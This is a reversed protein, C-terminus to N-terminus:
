TRNGSGVYSVVAQTGAILPFSPDCSGGAEAEQNSPNFACVVVWSLRSEAAQIVPQLYNISVTRHAPSLLQWIRMTYGYAHLAKKDKWVCFGLDGRLGLLRM